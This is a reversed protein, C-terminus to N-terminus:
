QRVGRKGTKSSKKKAPKPRLSERYKRGLEMAKEYDEDDAFAGYIKNIWADGPRGNMEASANKGEELQEIKTELTAIRSELIALKSAAM